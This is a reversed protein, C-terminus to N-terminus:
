ESNHVFVGSPTDWNKFDCCFLGCSSHPGQPILLSLFFLMFVGVMGLLTQLLWGGKGSHKAMSNIYSFYFYVGSYPSSTRVTANHM